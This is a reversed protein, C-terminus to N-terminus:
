RQGEADVSACGEVVVVVEEEEEEELRGASREEAIAIAIAVFPAHDVGGREGTVAGRAALGRRQERAQNGVGLEASARDDAGGGGGEATRRASRRNFESNVETM